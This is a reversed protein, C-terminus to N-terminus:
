KNLQNMPKNIKKKKKTIIKYKRVNIQLMSM